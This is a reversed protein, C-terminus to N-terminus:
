YVVNFFHEFGSVSSLKHQVFVVDDCPLPLTFFVLCVPITTIRSIGANSTTYISERWFATFV